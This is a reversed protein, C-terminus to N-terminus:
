NDNILDKKLKNHFRKIHANLSKKSTFSKQCESWDCKFPKEGKHKRIHNELLGKVICLLFISIM